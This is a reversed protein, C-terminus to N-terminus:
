VHTVEGWEDESETDSLEESSDIQDNDSLAAAISDRTSISLGSVASNSTSQTLNQHNEGGQDETTFYLKLQFLFHITIAKTLFCNSNLRFTQECM